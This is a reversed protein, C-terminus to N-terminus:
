RRPIALRRTGAGMIEGPFRGVTRLTDTWEFHSVTWWPSAAGASIRPDPADRGITALGGTASRLRDRLDAAASALAPGM